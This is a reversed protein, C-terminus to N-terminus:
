LGLLRIVLSGLFYDECPPPPTPPRRWMDRKNRFIVFCFLWFIEDLSWPNTGGM